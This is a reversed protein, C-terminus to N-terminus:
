KYEYKCGQFINIRIYNIKTLEFKATSIKKDKNQKGSNKIYYYQVSM